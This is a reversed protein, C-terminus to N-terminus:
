GAEASSFVSVSFQKGPGAPGFLFPPHKHRSASQSEGRRIPPHVALRRQGGGCKEAQALGLMGVRRALDAMQEWSLIKLASTFARPHIRAFWALLELAGEPPVKNHPPMRAGNVLDIVYQPLIKDHDRLLNGRGYRDILMQQVRRLERTGYGQRMSRTRVNAQHQRFYNLPTSVFAIDSLQLVNIYAMWDGCVRLIPLRGERVNSSKM